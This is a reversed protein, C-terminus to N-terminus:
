SGQPGPHIDPPELIGGNARITDRLKVPDVARVLGSPLSMAAAYGAAEGINSVVPMVRLSSHAVNDASICRSAILVNQLGLPVLSRYPVQYYSGPPLHEMRTQGFQQGHIDVPYCCCAIGDSFTRASKWDDYTLLYEGRIRRSERVGIHTGTKVLWAKEFGEINGRLWAVYNEARRRGEAEADSVAFPDLTDAPIRVANFYILGSPAVVALSLHPNLLPPTDQPGTKVRERIKFRGPWRQLDVGGVAFFLTMPMVRGEADGTDVQAGAESALLGDGTSDIFVSGSVRLPGRNHSLMLARVRGAADTEVSHLAAHFLVRVGAEAVMEDLVVKLVEDDFIAGGGEEHYVANRAKLRAVMTAHVGANVHRRLNTTPDPKTRDAMYPNVLMTTAAGGLCGEREILLTKVGMRAAAIAAGVGGPGGGAIIVDYGQISLPDNKMCEDLTPKTAERASAGHAGAPKWGMGPTVAEQLM